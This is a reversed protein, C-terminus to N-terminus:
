MNEWYKAILYTAGKTGKRDGTVWGSDFSM